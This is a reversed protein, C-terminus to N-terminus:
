NNDSPIPTSFKNFQTPPPCQYNVSFCRSFSMENEDNVEEQKSDFFYEPGNDPTQKDISLNATEPQFQEEEDDSPLTNKSYIVSRNRYLTGQKKDGDDDM